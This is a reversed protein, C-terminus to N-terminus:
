TRLTSRTQSYPQTWLRDDISSHDSPTGHREKRTNSNRLMQSPFTYQTSDVAHKTRVEYTNCCRAEYFSIIKTKVSTTSEAHGIPSTKRARTITLHKPNDLWVSSSTTLIQYLDRSLPIRNNSWFKIKFRRTKRQCLYVLTLITVACAIISVTCGDKKTTTSRREAADTSDPGLKGALLISLEHRHVSSIFGIKRIPLIFQKM